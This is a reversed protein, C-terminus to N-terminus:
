AWAMPALKGATTDLLPCLWSDWSWHLTPSAGCSGQIKAHMTWFVRQPLVSWPCWLGWSYCPCPCLYLGQCCSQGPHWWPELPSLVPWENHGQYCCPGPVSVHDGSHSQLINGRAHCYMNIIEAGLCRSCPSCLNLVLQAVLLVKDWFLFFIFIYKTALNQLATFYRWM